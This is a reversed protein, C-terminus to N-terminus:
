PVLSQSHAALYQKAELDRQRIEQLADTKKRLRTAEQEAAEAREQESRLKEFGVPLIIAAALLMGMLLFIVDRRWTTWQMSVM